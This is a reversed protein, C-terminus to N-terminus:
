GVEGFCLIRLEKECFECIWEEAIFSWVLTDTLCEFLCLWLRQILLPKAEEKKVMLM